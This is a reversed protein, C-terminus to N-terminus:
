TGPLARRASHDAISHRLEHISPGAPWRYRTASGSAIHRAMRSIREKIFAGAHGSIVLRRPADEASVRQVVGQRRGLSVCQVAFGFRFPLPGRGAAVRLINDAVHAGMPEAAACSWRHGTAAIDGAVWLGPGFSLADDPATVGHITPTEFGTCDVVLDAAAIQATTETVTVGVRALHDRAKSRADSGMRPLVGAPDTLVVDLDPRREAVEAALEVGTHGAGRIHVLSGRRLALLDGRVHVSSELSTVGPGVGSGAAVVVHDAVLERGDDLTVRGPQVATVLAPVHKAGVPLVESLPPAVQDVSWGGAAFQHLRIRDVFRDGPSVVTLEAKGCFRHAATLGAYGAGVIVVRPARILQDSM